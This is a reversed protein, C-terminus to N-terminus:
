RRSRAARQVTLAVTRSRPAHARLVRRRQPLHRRPRARRGDVHNGGAHPLGRRDLRASVAMAPSIVLLSPHAHMEDVRESGRLSWSLTSVSTAVTASRHRVGAPHRVPTPELGTSTRSEEPAPEAALEALQERLLWTPEEYVDDILTELAPPAIARRRARDGRARRGRDTAALAEREGAALWGRAISTASSGACRIASTAEVRRHGGRRPLAVSRRVVLARQRPLHAARHVDPRRRPAGQRRRVEGRPLGRARRQRRRPAGRRRLRDGKLAITEAATQVHGPTSIAWQNNQCILVCPAKMVGAFNLAVHFDPESTGGDGM